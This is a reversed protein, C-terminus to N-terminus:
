LLIKKQETDTCRNLHNTDENTGNCNPCSTKELKDWRALMVRMSCHDLGTRVFWLQYMKSKRWLMMYLEEWAVLDFTDGDLIDRKAYFERVRAKRIAYHLGKVLGTTHKDDAIYVCSMELPPQQGIGIGHLVGEVIM